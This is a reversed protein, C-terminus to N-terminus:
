LNNKFIRDNVTGLTAYLQQYRPQPSRINRRGKGKIKKLARHMNEEGGSDFYNNQMTAYHELHHDDFPKITTNVFKVSNKPKYTDVATKYMKLVEELLNEKSYLGLAKIYNHPSKLRKKSAQVAEQM